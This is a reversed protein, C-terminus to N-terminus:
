LLVTSRKTVQYIGRKLEWAGTQPEVLGAQLNGNVTVLAVNFQHNYPEGVDFLGVDIVIGVCNSLFLQNIHSQLALAFAVCNFRKPIYLLKETRDWAMIEDWTQLSPVWWTDNQVLWPCTDPLGFGPILATMTRIVADVGFPELEVKPPAVDPLGMAALVAAMESARSMAMSVAQQTQAELGAIVERLREAEAQWDTSM